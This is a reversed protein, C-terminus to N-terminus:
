TVFWGVRLVKNVNNHLLDVMCIYFLGGSTILTLIAVQLDYKM